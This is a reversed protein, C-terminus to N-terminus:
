VYSKRDLMYFTISLEDESVTATNILIKELALYESNMRNTFATKDIIEGHWPTSLNPRTYTRTLEFM